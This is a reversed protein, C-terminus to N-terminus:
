EDKATITVPVGLERLYNGNEDFVNCMALCDPCPRKESCEDNEGGCYSALLLFQYPKCYTPRKLDPVNMPEPKETM